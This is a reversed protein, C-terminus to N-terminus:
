AAPRVEGGAAPTGSGEVREVAAGSDGPARKGLVTSTAIWQELLQRNEKYRVLNRAHIARIVSGLEQALEDLQQTAAKYAM